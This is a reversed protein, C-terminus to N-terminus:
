VGFLARHAGLVKVQERIRPTYKESLHLNLYRIHQAANGVSNYGKEGENFKSCLRSVRFKLDDTIGTTKIEKILERMSSRHQKFPGFTESYNELLKIAREADTKCDPNDWLAGLEEELPAAIKEIRKNEIDSDSKVRRASNISAGFLGPGSAIQTFMDPTITTKRM